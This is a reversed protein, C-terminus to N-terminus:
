PIIGVAYYNVTFKVGFFHLVLNFQNFFFNEIGFLTPNPRLIALVVMKSTDSLYNEKKTFVFNIMTKKSHFKSFKATASM